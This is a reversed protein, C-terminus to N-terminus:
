TTQRVILEVPIPAPESPQEKNAMAVITRVDMSKKNQM